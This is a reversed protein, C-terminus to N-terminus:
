FMRTIVFYGFSSTYPASIPYPSLQQRQRQINYTQTIHAIITTTTNTTTTTTITTTPLLFVAFSYLLLTM